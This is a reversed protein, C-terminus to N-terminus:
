HDQHASKRDGKEADKNGTTNAPTRYADERRLEETSSNGRTTDVISAGEHPDHSDNAM